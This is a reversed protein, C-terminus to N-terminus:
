GRRYLANFTRSLVDADAPPLMIVDVIMNNADQLVAAKGKEATVGHNMVMASLPKNNSLKTAHLTRGFVGQVYAMTYHSWRKAEEESLHGDPAIHTIDKTQIYKNMRQILDTQPKSDKGANILMKAAEEKALEAFKAVTPLTTAQMNLLYYPNEILKATVKKIVELEEILQPLQEPVDVAITSLRQFVQDVVMGQPTKVWDPFRDKRPSRLFWPTGHNSAIQKKMVNSEIPPVFIPSQNKGGM